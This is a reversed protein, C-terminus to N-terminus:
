KVWLRMRFTPTAFNTYGCSTSCFMPGASQGSRGFANVFWTGPVGWKTVTEETSTTFLAQTATDSYWNVHLALEKTADHGTNVTSFVLMGDVGHAHPQTGVQKDLHQNATGSCVPVADAQYTKVPAAYNAYLLRKTGTSDILCDFPGNAAAHVQSFFTTKGLTFVGSELVREDQVRVVDARLQTTGAAVPLRNCFNGQRADQGNLETRGWQKSLLKNRSAAVTRWEWFDYATEDYAFCLTWGGGALDCWARFADDTSGGEPDLWYLDDIRMGAAYLAACSTAPTARSRGLTGDHRNIATALTTFNGNVDNADAVQGNSFTKLTGVDAVAVCPLLALALLFSRM